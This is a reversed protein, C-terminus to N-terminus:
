KSTETDIKPEILKSVRQIIHETPINFAWLLQMTLDEFITRQHMRLIARYIANHHQRWFRITIAFLKPTKFYADGLGLTKQSNKEMFM